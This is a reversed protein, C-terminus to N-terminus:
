EHTASFGADDHPGPMPISVGAPGTGRSPSSTDPRAIAWGSRWAVISPPAPSAASRATNDRRDSEADGPYVVQSRELGEALTDDKGSSDRLLWGSHVRRGLPVVPRQLVASSAGTPHAAAQAAWKTGNWAEALPGAGELHTTYTGVASCSSPAPAGSMASHRAPRGSPKAASQATWSTGNWREALPIQGSSSYAWGVATCAYIASCSVQNLYASTAGSPLPITRVGWSSGSRTESIMGGNGYGVAVCTTSTLCWDGTLTSYQDGGPRVTADLRWSTGNWDEGLTGDIGSGVATCTTSSGCGVSSFGGVFCPGSGGCEQAGPFGTPGTPGFESRGGRGPEGGMALPPVGRGYRLWPGLKRDSPKRM